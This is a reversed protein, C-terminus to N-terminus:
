KLIIPETIKSYHKKSFLTSHTRNNINSYILGILENTDYFTHKYDLFIPLISKTYAIPGTVKLVGQKGAGDINVNYNVINKIVNEIVRKLYPHGPRCIIHWQQFEGYQNEIITSQCECHWHTLIYEDDYKILQNLPYKMASKIDFYAGGEKYMLLYRFFDARAAGYKPNIHNYLDLIYPPYNKELYQIIDNDDLLHHTWDPNLDKIYEINKQFSPHVNNKDAILQYIHKPIYKSGRNYSTINKDIQDNNYYNNYITCCLYFILFLAVISFIIFLLEM